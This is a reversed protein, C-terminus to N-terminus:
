SHILTNISDFTEYDDNNNQQEQEFDSQILNIQENNYKYRDTNIQNDMYNEIQNHLLKNNYIYYLIFIILLLILIENSKITTNPLFRMIYYIIICLIIYQLFINILNNHYM